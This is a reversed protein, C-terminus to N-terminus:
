IRGGVSDAAAIGVAGGLRNEERANGHPCKLVSRHAPCHWPKEPVRRAWGYACLATASEFRRGNGRNVTKSQAGLMSVRPKGGRMAVISSSSPVSSRSM